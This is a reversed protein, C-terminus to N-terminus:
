KLCNNWIEKDFEGISASSDTHDDGFSHKIEHLVALEMFQDSTISSVGLAAAQWDLLQLRSLTGNRYGLTANPDAWNVANNLTVQRGLGLVGPRYRAIWSSKSATEIGNKIEFTLAGAGGFGMAM